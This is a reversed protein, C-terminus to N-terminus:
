GEVRLQGERIARMQYIAFVMIVAMLLWVEAMAYGFKINIYAQKFIDLGFVYTAQGPGGSTMLLVHEATRAASLIWGVFSVGILPRLYPITITLLRDWLSAGVMLSEEYLEEPITSLGALYILGSVGLTSWAQAFVVSFMAMKPNGLWDQPPFGLIKAILNMFGNPSYLQEWMLAIVVANAVAPLFFATRSLFQLRRFGSLAIALVLPGLFGFLFSWGMFQLTNVLAVRTTTSTIVDLYNGLGSYVGGDRLINTYLSMKFGYFLPFAAFVASLAVGPLFLVVLLPIERRALGTSPNKRLMQIETWLMAFLYGLSALLSLGFLVLIVLAAKHGGSGSMQGKGLVEMDYKDQVGKLAAQVDGGELVLKELVPVLMECLKSYDLWPYLMQLEASASRLVPVWQPPMGIPPVAAPDRVLKGINIVGRGGAYIGEAVQDYLPNFNSVGTLYEWVLKRRGPERIYSPLAIIPNDNSRWSLPVLAFAGPIVALLPQKQFYRVNGSMFNLDISRWIGAAIKGEVQAGCLENRWDFFAIRGQSDRVKKGWDRLFEAAMISGRSLLDATIRGDSGVRAPESGAQRAMVTLLEPLDNRRMGLGARTPTTLKGALAAMQDWTAPLRAEKIGAYLLADRDYVLVPVSLADPIGWNKGEIFMGARLRPPLTSKGTWKDPLDDVSQILGSRIYDGYTQCNLLVVDPGAAAALGMVKTATFINPPLSLSSFQQISVGPHDRKFQEQLTIDVLAWEAIGAWAMYEVKIVEGASSIAPIGAALLAPMIFSLVKLAQFLRIRRCLAGVCTM